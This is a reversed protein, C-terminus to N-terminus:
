PFAVLLTHGFAVIPKIGRSKGCHRTDSIRGLSVHLLPSKHARAQNSRPADEGGGPMASFVSLLPWCSSSAPLSPCPPRQFPGALRVRAASRLGATLPWPAARAPRRVQRLPGAPTRRPRARMPRPRRPAQVLAGLVVYGGPNVTLIGTSPTAAPGAFDLTGSSVTTGGTYTNTGTLTFIGSGTKILAGDGSISGAFTTSTNNGGTTLTGIRVLVQTTSDSSALSGITQSTYNLDLTGGGSIVVPTASPLSVNSSVLLQWPFTATGTGLWKAELYSEVAAQQATTLASTFMLVEGLNGNFYGNDGILNGSGLWGTTGSTTIGANNNNSVATAGNVLLSHGVGPTFEGTMVVPYETGRTNMDPNGASVPSGGYCASSNDYYQDYSYVGTADGLTQTWGMALGGNHDTPTRSVFQFQHKYEWGRRALAGDNFSRAAVALITYGTNNLCAQDNFSMLTATGATATNTSPGELTDGGFYGFSLTSMGTHSAGVFASNITM